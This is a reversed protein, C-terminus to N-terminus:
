DGMVGEAVLLVLTTRVDEAVAPNKRAAQRALRLFTKTPLLPRKV